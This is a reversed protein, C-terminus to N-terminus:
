VFQKFNNVLKQYGLPTEYTQVHKIPSRHDYWHQILMYMAIKLPRVDDQSGPSSSYNIRIGDIAVSPAIPNLIEIRGSINNGIAEIYDVNVVLTSEATNTIRYKIVLTTIVGPYSLQIINDPGYNDRWEEVVETVVVQNTDKLVTIRAIKILETIYADDLTFSSDLRCYEKAEDLSIVETGAYTTITPQRPM